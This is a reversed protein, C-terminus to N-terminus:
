SKVTRLHYKDRIKQLDKAERDPDEKYRKSLVERIERMTKVADFTKM